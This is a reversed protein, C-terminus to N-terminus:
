GKRAQRGRCSYGRTKKQKSLAEQIDDETIKGDRVLLEGLMRPPSKLEDLYRLIREMHSDFPKSDKICKELDEAIIYLDDFGIFKAANKLGGAGRLVQRVDIEGNESAINIIEIFQELQKIFIKVEENVVTMSNKM